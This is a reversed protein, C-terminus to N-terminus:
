ICPLSSLNHPPISYVEKPALSYAMDYAKLAQSFDSVSKLMDAIKLYGKWGDKGKNPPNSDVRIATEFQNLAEEHNGMSQAAQNM